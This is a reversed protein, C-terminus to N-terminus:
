VSLVLDLLVLFIFFEEIRFLVQNSQMAIALETIAERFSDTLSLDSVDFLLHYSEFIDKSNFLSANMTSDEYNVGSYLSNLGILPMPIPQVSFIRPISFGSSTKDTMEHEMEFRQKSDTKSIVKSRRNLIISYVGDPIIYSYDATMNCGLFNLSSVPLRIKKQLNDWGFGLNAKLVRKPTEEGNTIRLNESICWNEDALNNLNAANEDAQVFDYNSFYFILCCCSVIRWAM